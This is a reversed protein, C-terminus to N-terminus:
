PTSLATAYGTPTVGFWRKFAKSFQHIDQYGLLLATDTVSLEASGLYQAALTQRVQQVLAAYHTGERQLHRKLTALSIAFIDCLHERRPEGLVLLLRIIGRCREAFSLDPFQTQLARENMGLRRLYGDANANYHQPSAYCLSNQDSSFDPTVGFYHRYRRALADSGSQRLTLAELKEGALISFLRHVAILVGDTQHHSVLESYPTVTVKYHQASITCDLDAVETLVRFYRELIRIVLLPHRKVQQHSEGFQEAIFNVLPLQELQQSAVLELGLCPDGLRDAIRRINRSNTELCVRGSANAVTPEMTAVLDALEGIRGRTELYRQLAAMNNMVVASHVSRNM